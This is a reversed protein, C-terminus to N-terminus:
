SPNPASIPSSRRACGDFLPFAFLGFLYGGIHAEWAITLGSGFVGGAGIATLINFGIYVASAVAVPRSSVPALRGQEPGFPAFPRLAFRMAGAMLGSIAGSAGILVVPSAPNFAAYFLAGAVGCAFFFALFVGANFAHTRGRPTEVALRRVVGTGFVALWLSNLLLHPLNGHVFVHGFLPLLTETPGVQGNMGALFRAPIFGLVWDLTRGLGLIGLVHVIAMIAILVGVLRPLVIMGGGGRRREPPNLGLRSDLGRRSASPRQHM